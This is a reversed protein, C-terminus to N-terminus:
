GGFISGERPKIYGLELRDYILVFVDKIPRKVKRAIILISDGSSWMKEVLNVEQYTWDLNCHDLAIYIERM